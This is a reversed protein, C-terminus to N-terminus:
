TYVFIYESCASPRVSNEITHYSNAIEGVKEVYPVYRLMLQVSFRPSHFFNLDKQLRHTCLFARVGFDLSFLECMLM